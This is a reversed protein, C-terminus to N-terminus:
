KATGRAAVFRYIGWALVVVGALALLRTGTAFGVVALTPGTVMSVLGRRYLSFLLPTRPVPGGPSNQSM